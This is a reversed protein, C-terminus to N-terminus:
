LEYSHKFNRESQLLGPQIAQYKAPDEQQLKDLTEWVNQAAGMMEKM